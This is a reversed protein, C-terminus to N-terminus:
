EVPPAHLLLDPSGEGASTVRGRTANDLLYRTVEAPTATPHQGLYRAAVGTVHPAAMSTGEDEALAYVSTNIASLIAKGPAFIDVCPGFSSFAARSDERTTAGVTIASPARAPSIACADGGDNGAAVVVTVGAGTMRAVAQDMAESAGGGLSLNAVAPKVHNGTVWDLGAVIGSIEGYGTCGLVRVSHLTVAKAVGTWTGGITGAVHTGHGRCDAMLLGDNIATFGNGIRGTFQVHNLMIGSDVVYVHVGHGATAYNFSADLPLARQDIRDLGWPAPSQRAMLEVRADQEIYAVDPDARLRALAKADAEVVFGRLAHGYHRKLRAGHRQSMARGATAVDPLARREGSLRAAHDKLVVIYQGPIPNQPAHLRAAASAHMAAVPFLLAFLTTLRALRPM